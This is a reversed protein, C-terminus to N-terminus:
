GPRRAAAGARRTTGVVLLAALFGFGVLMALAAQPGPYPAPYLLLWVAEPAAVAGLMAAMTLRVPRGRAALVALVPAVLLGGVLLAGAPGTTGPPAGPALAIVAVAAAAWTLDESRRAGGTGIAATTAAGLLVLPFFAAVMDVIVIGFTVEFRSAQQDYEGTVLAFALVTATVAWGAGALRRERTLAGLLAVAAGALLVSWWRGLPALGWIRAAGAGWVALNAAALPVALREAAARWPIAGLDGRAVHARQALGGRVLGAAERARSGGDGALDAACDLLVDGDRERVAKPYARLAARLLRSRRVRPHKEAM